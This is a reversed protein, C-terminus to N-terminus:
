LLANRSSSCVGSPRSIPKWTGTTTWTIRPSHVRAMCLARSSVEVALAADGADASRRLWRYFVPSEPSTRVAEVEENGAANLVTGILGCGKGIGLFLQRLLTTTTTKGNTGTVAIVSLAEDPCGLIWRAAEAMAERPQTLRAFPVQAPLPIEQDCLIGAAGAQLAKQIYETGDTQEGKLAVFIWGPLIERSDCALGTVQVEMPGRAGSVDLKGILEGFRMREREM